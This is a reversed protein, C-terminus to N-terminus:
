RCSSPGAPGAVGVPVAVAPPFLGTHVRVGAAPAVWIARIQGSLLRIARWGELLTVLALILVAILPSLQSTVRSRTDGAASPRPSNRALRAPSQRQPPQARPPPQPAVAAAPAVALVAATRVVVTAVVSAGVAREGAVPLDVAALAVEAPAVAALAVAAPADSSAVDSLAAGSLAAGTPAPVAPLHLLATAPELPVAWPAPPHVRWYPSQQWGRLRTSLTPNM